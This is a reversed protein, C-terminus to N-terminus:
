QSQSDLQDFASGTAGRAQTPMKQAHLHDRVLDDLVGITICPNLGATLAVGWTLNSCKHQCLHSLSCTHDGQRCM